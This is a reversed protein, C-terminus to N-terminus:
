NTSCDSRLRSTPPELGEVPVLFEFEFPAALCTPPSLARPPSSMDDHVLPSSNIAATAAPQASGVAPGPAAGASPVAVAPSARVKVASSSRAHGRVPSAFQRSA